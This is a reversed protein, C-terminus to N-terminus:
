ELLLEKSEPDLLLRSYVNEIYDKRTHYSMAYTLMIWQDRHKKTTNWDKTQLLIRKGEATAKAINDHRAVTMEKGM